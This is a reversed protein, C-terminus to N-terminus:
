ERTENLRKDIAILQGEIRAIGNLITNTREDQRTIAIENARIRAQHGEIQAFSRDLGKTNADVRGNLDAWAIAFAIIGTGITIINGASISPTFQPRFGRAHQPNTSPDAM